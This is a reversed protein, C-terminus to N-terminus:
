RFIKTSPCLLSQDSGERACSTSQDKTFHPISMAAKYRDYPAATFEEPASMIEIDAGLMWAPDVRMQAFLPQGGERVSLRHM